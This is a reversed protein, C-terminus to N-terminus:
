DVDLWVVAPVLVSYEDYREAEHTGAILVAPHVLIKIMKGDLSHDEPDDMQHLSHAKLSKERINFKVDRLDALCRCHVSPRQLWLQRSLQGARQCITALKEVFEAYTSSEMRRLFPKPLRSAYHKAYNACCADISSMVSAVRANMVSDDLQTPNLLRLTDSRWINAKRPDDPQIDAFDEYVAGRIFFECKCGSLWVDSFSQLSDLNLQPVRRKTSLPELTTDTNDSMFFFPDGLIDRHVWSSILAATCLRSARNIGMLEDMAEAEVEVSRFQVVQQLSSLLDRKHKLADGERDLDAMSEATYKKALDWIDARIEELKGAIKGSDMPMWRANEMSTFSSAQLCCIEESLAGNQQELAHVEHELKQVRQQYKTRENRLDRVQQQLDVDENPEDILVRNHGNLSNKHGM